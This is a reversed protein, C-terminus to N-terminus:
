KKKVPNRRLEGTREADRDVEVFNVYAKGKIFNHYWARRVSGKVLELIMEASTEGTMEEKTALGDTFRQDTFYFKCGRYAYAVTCDLICHTMAAKDMGFTLAELLLRIKLKNGTYIFTKFLSPPLRVFNKISLQCVLVASVINTNHDRQYQAVSSASLPDNEPLVTSADANCIAVTPSQGQQAEVKDFIYPATQPNSLDAPINLV